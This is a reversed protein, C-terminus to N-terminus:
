TEDIGASAQEAMWLCIVMGCRVYECRMQGELEKIIESSKHGSNPYNMLRSHKTGSTVQDLDSSLAVHLTPICTGEVM